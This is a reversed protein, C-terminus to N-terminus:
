LIIFSKIHDKESCVYFAYQLLQLAGKILLRDRIFTRKNSTAQGTVNTNSTKKNDRLKKSLTIM